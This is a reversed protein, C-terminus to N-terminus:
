GVRAALEYLQRGLASAPILLEEPGAVRSEPVVAFVPLSMIAEIEPVSLCMERPAQNLVLRMKERTLGEKLLQEVLRRTHNLAPLDATFVLFGEDVCRLLDFAVGSWGRGLDMVSWDYRARVFDAVERLQEGTLPERPACVRPAPLMELGDEVPSVLTQWRQWDMRYLSQVADMVSGNGGAKMLFGAIGADLDFDALLARQGRTAGRRALEGAIRCALTTAGCGGKVSLFGLVRGLARPGSTYRLEQSKRELLRRLTFCVPPYLYENAGARVARLVSEPDASHSLAAVTASAALRISGVADDLPTELRSIDLVVVHPQVNTLQELFGRWATFERCDAVVRAPLEELARAVERRLEDDIIALALRVPLV